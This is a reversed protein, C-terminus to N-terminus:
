AKNIEPAHKAFDINITYVFKLSNGSKKLVQGHPKNTLTPQKQCVQKPHHLITKMCLKERKGVRDQVREYIVNPAYYRQDKLCFEFFLKRNKYLWKAWGASRPFVFMRKIPSFVGAAFYRKTCSCEKEGLERHYYIL